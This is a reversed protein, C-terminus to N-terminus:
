ILEPMMGIEKHVIKKELGTREGEGQREESM